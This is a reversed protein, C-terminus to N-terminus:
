LVEVLNFTAHAFDYYPQVLPDLQELHALFTRRFRHYTDDDNWVFMVQQSRGARRQLDLVAELATALKINSITFQARRRRDREVFFRVGEPTESFTSRDEWGLQAGSSPGHSSTIGGGLWLRGIEIYGDTNTTDVVEVLVYQGVAYDLAPIHVFAPSKYSALEEKTNLGSWAAPTSGFPLSGPEVQSQWVSLAGSDYAFTTFTPDDGVVFRITANVSLNHRVIGLALLGRQIGLDVVARTSSLALDASRALQWLHSTLMNSAPMSAQWSGSSIAVTAYPAKADVYNPHSLITKPM